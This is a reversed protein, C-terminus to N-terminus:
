KYGLAEHRYSTGGAADQIVDVTIFKGVLRDCWSPRVAVLIKRYDGDKKAYVWHPNPARQLVKVRVKKPVALPVDLALRVKDAGGETFYQKGDEGKFWEDATLREDRLAALKTRSVRLEDALKVFSIM